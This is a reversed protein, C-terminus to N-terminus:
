DSGHRRYSMALVRLAPGIAQPAPGRGHDHTECACDGLTEEVAEVIDLGGPEVIKNLQQVTALVRKLPLSAEDCTHCTWRSACDSYVQYFNM